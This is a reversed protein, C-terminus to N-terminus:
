NVRGQGPAGPTAMSKQLEQVAKRRTAPKVLKKVVSGLPGCQGFEFRRGAKEAQCEGRRTAAAEQSRVDAWRVGSAAMSPKESTVRPPALM